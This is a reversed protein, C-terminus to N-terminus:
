RPVGTPVLQHTRYQMPSLGAIRRFMRAFHSSDDFGVAIAVDTIRAEPNLLLEKAAKLRVRDVVQRYTVGSAELGRALSRVSTDMLGAALQASPYGCPLYPELLVALTEAYDLDKIMGRSREEVPDPEARRVPMHLCSRPVAILGAPQQPLIRSGPFLEEALRPVERSEIGITRPQWSRGLFHRMLDVILGIQYAQSSHYGSVGKMIPYRTFFVIDESREVLGLEVHSAEAKVLRILRKLAVYLTQAGEVSRLHGRSLNQDGVFHGVRWGLTPDETRAAADFFSWAQRLPVYSNPDDCYAALGGRRLLREAPAGVKELFAKFALVHGLRLIPPKTYRKSSEM